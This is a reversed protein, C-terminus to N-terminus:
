RGHGGGRQKEFEGAMDEQEFWQRIADQYAAHPTMGRRKASSTAGVLWMQPIVAKRGNLWVEVYKTTVRGEEEKM